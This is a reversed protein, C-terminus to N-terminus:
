SIIAKEIAELLVQKVNELSIKRTELVGLPFGSKELEEKWKEANGCTDLLVVGKIGSFFSAFTAVDGGEKSMKEKVHMFGDIKGPGMFM